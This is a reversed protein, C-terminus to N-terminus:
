VGVRGLERGEGKSRSEVTGENTRKSENGEGEGESEM